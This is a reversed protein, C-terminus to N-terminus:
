PFKTHDMRMQNKQVPRYPGHSELQRRRLVQLQTREWGCSDALSLTDLGDPRASGTTSMVQHSCVVHHILRTAAATVGVSMHFVDIQHPFEKCRHGHHKCRRHRDTRGQM